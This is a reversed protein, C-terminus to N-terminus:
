SLRWFRGIRFRWFNVTKITAVFTLNLYNSNEPNKVELFVFEDQIYASLDLNRVQQRLNIANSSSEDSDTNTYKIAITTDRFSDKLNLFM